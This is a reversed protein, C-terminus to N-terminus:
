GVLRSTMRLPSHVACGRARFIASFRDRARVELEIASRSHDPMLTPYTPRTIVAGSPAGSTPTNSAVSAIIDHGALHIATM